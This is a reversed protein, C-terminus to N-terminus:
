SCNLRPGPGSSGPAARRPTRPSRRRPACPAAPPRARRGAASRPLASTSRCPTSGAAPSSCNCRSRRSRCSRRDPRQRRRHGARRHERDGVDLSLLVAVLRDIERHREVPRRGPGDRHVVGGGVAARRRADAVRRRAAHQSDRAPARVFVTSTVSSSSVCSSPSSVNVSRSDFAESATIVSPSAVPYISCSSGIGRASKARKARVAAICTTSCTSSRSCAGRSSPKRPRKAPRSSRLPISRSMASLQRRPSPPAARMPGPRRPRGRRGGPCAPPRRPTM